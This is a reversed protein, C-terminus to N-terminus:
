VATDIEAAKKKRSKPPDLEDAQKRLVQAEKFLKDAKSRLQAPTSLDEIIPPTPNILRDKRTAETPIFDDVVEDSNVSASTTKTADDRKNQNITPRNPNPNFGDTVALDDITVGKQEAILANLESLIIEANPGPTMIVGNTPVKKLQGRRHLAELINAGDPFKRVALIDALENAQQGSTDQVVGMLTDHWSDSLGGTGIVLASGSDGPLTRYAVVVKAGNNKMKGIHKM